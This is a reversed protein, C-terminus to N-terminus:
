AQYVFSSMPQLKFLNKEHMSDIKVKVKESPEIGDRIYADLEAYSFGFSQEDTLGTLGDQPIKHVLTDPLNLEKALAIVETKTLNALPSMDGASDGFITDFGVYSESMNCTNIVRGNLSQSIAYLTAMRIRPPLNITTQKSVEIDTPFQNDIGIVADWINMTYSKIELHKILMNAHEIDPQEGCPMKIGFVRDKGLAAVCLATVVSSDVGGSIGVIANCDKGNQEFWDRIWEVIENKVKKVDFM